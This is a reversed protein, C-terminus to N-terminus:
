LRADDDILGGCEGTNRKTTGSLGGCRRTEHVNESDAQESLLFVGPTTLHPLIIPGMPASAGDAAASRIKKIPLTM